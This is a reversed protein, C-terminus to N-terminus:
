ITCNQVEGVTGANALAMVERMAHQATHWLQPYVVRTHRTDSNELPAAQQARDLQSPMRQQVQHVQPAYFSAPPAIQYTTCQQVQHVQRPYCSALAVQQSPVWQQIQHVQLANVNAPPRQQSPVPQHMQHIQHACVQPLAAEQYMTFQQMHHRQSTKLVAARQCAAANQQVQSRNGVMRSSDWQPLDRIRRKRNNCGSTQSGPIPGEWHRFAYAQPPAAEAAGRTFVQSPPVAPSSPSAATGCVFPDFFPSCEASGPAKRAASAGALQPTSPEHPSTHMAVCQRKQAPEQPVEHEELWLGIAEIPEDIQATEKLSRLCGQM